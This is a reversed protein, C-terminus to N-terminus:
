PRWFNGNNEIIRQMEALAEAVKAPGEKAAAALKEYVAKAYDLTHIGDHGNIAFCLNRLNPDDKAANAADALLPINAEKLIAQAQGIYWVQKESTTLGALDGVKKDKVKNWIDSNLTKM